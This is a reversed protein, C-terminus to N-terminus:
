GSPEEGCIGEVLKGSPYELCAHDPAVDGAGLPEALLPEGSQTSKADTRAVLAPQRAPWLPTSVLIELSNGSLGIRPLLRRVRSGSRSGIGEVVVHPYGLGDVAVQAFGIPQPQKVSAVDIWYESAARPPAALEVTFCLSGSQPHSITLRRIDLWPAEVPGGYNRKQVDGLPDEDSVQPGACSFSPPGIDAPLQVTTADGPAYYLQEEPRGRFGTEFTRLLIGPKIIAWGGGVPVLYVVDERRQTASGCHPEEPSDGNCGYEERVTMIVTSVGTTTNSSVGKVRLISAQRLRSGSGDRNLRFAGRLASLCNSAESNVLEARLRPAFTACVGRADRQDLAHV